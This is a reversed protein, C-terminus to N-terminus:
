KILQIFTVCGKSLMRVSWTCLILEPRRNWAINHKPKPYLRSCICVLINQKQKGETLCSWMISTSIFLFDCETSESKKKEIHDARKFLTRHILILAVNFQCKFLNFVLLWELSNTIKKQGNGLIWHYNWQSILLKLFRRLLIDM